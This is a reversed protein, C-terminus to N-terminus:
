FQIGYRETMAQRTNASLARMEEVMVSSENLGRLGEDAQILARDRTVYGKEFFGYAGYRGYRSRGYNWMTSERLDSRQQARQLLNGIERLRIVVDDAFTVVDPDVGSTDLNEIQRAYREVWVEVQYLSQPQAVNDVFLDDLYGTVSQFYKRSVEAMANEASESNPYAAPKTWPGVPGSLVSLVRRLGSESLDDTFLLENGSSQVQWQSIDKLQAGHKSLIEALLAGAIPELASVDQGCSVRLTAAPANRFEIELRVGQISALVDAVASLELASDVLAQSASLREHVEEVALLGTLDFGLVMHAQKQDVVSVCDGLYASLDPKLKVQSERVWRIVQQRNAPSMAGVIRPGFAVVFSDNPREVAETGALRDLRGDCHEAIDKMKPREPMQAVAIEWLPQMYEYDMEAAMVFWNLKSPLGLMGSSEADRRSQQWKGQRAMPSDLVAQVDVVVVANSRAPIRTVLQSLEGHSSQVLGVFALAAIVTRPTSIM